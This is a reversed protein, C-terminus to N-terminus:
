DPVASTIRDDRDEFLVRQRSVTRLYRPQAPDDELAKRLRLLHQRLTGAWRRGSTGWVQMLLQDHSYARGPHAVLFWLLDFERPTLRVPRGDRTVVRQHTDVVVQGFRFVIPASTAASATDDGPPLTALLSLLTDLSAATPLYADAGLAAAVARDIVDDAGGVM